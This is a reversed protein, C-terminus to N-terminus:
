AKLSLLFPLLGYNNLADKAKVHIHLQKYM